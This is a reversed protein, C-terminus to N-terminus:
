KPLKWQLYEKAKLILEAVGYTRVTRFIKSPLSQWSSVGSEILPIHSLYPKDAAFHPSECFRILPQMVIEWEYDARIRDFNPKYFQRLNPIALLEQLAESVREVDGSKVVKGLQFKAVEESLTDGETVLMPLGTWIYDLLRTRFAFRTEIHTRHLSVGIDAELLYNRREQYPVWDNFFVVRGYLGLEQSLKVAQSAAEMKASSPNPSKTGMFFLKAKPHHKSVITMANILTQPDLWSWIGGGWLVVKDDLAINKYVGKLVPKDQFPIEGPLGFPVVDILTSLTPDHRHTYPNVRGLASLWGLWFDKQKENACIIFDASRVQFNHSGRNGDYLANQEKISKDEHKQLDELMFPIYMDVVLPRNTKALFPYISLNAGVTIIVDADQTLSQLEAQTKCLPVEFTPNLEKPSSGEQVFPPIALKVTFYNSLVNAFEWYRIGPGTM